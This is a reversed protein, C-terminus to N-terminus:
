THTRLSAIIQTMLMEKEKTYFTRRGEEGAEEAMIYSIKATLSQRM